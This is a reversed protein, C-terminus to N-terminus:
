LSVPQWKDEPLIENMTVLFESFDMPKGLFADFGQAILSEAVGEIVNATLAVIKQSSGFEYGALGRILQMAEIGDMEPMMQDMLVVDYATKRCKEIAERGSSAVDSSINHSKLLLSTIRLNVENDDVILFHLNNAMKFNAPTITAKNEAVNDIDTLLMIPNDDVIKETLTVTFVSGADVVSEVSITGGMLEVLGKTISLGLGTGETKSNLASDLRRFKDFVGPLDEKKIGIGSDSVKYEITCSDNERGVLKAQFHVHGKNTYKVANSLLNLLIERVKDKDGHLGNPIRSDISVQFDLGKKNAQVKTIMEVDRYIRAPKYDTYHLEQKGLEIKSIDLIENIISLLVEGSHKIGSFYSQAQPDLKESLALQSYGLIANMPTRIEHSMNALFLSKSMNASDAALKAQELKQIVMEHETLDNVLLIYGIVDKYKTKIKSIAIECSTQNARAVAKVVKTKGEFDFVSDDTDFLTDIHSGYLHSSFAEKGFLSAAAGNAIELRFDTNFVLVPTGLSYYVYESMNAVTIKFSYMEHIAYWFVCVGWFHTIASGPFAVMGFSPMIMDTVAGIWILLEVVLFRKSAIRVQRLTHHRIIYITVLLINVSVVTFYTSYIFNIWNRTFYFTTGIENHVYITQGPTLYLLFVIVGSYAILNIVRQVSKPLESLVCMIKQISMMFMFTGVIGFTRWNNAYTDNSQLSMMGMGISWIASSLTIWYILYNMSDKPKTDRFFRVTYNVAMTANVCFMFAIVLQPVTYM